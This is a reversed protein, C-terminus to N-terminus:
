LGFLVSHSSRFPIMLLFQICLIVVKNKLLGLGVSLSRSVSAPFFATLLMPSSISGIFHLYLQCMLWPVLAHGLYNVHHVLWIQPTTGTCDNINNTISQCKLHSSWCFETASSAAWVPWKFNLVHSRHTKSRDYDNFLGIPAGHYCMFDESTHTIQGEWADPLSCSNFKRQWCLDAANYCWWPWPYWWWSYTCWFLFYWDACM